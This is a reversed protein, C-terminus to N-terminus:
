CTEKGRHKALGKRTTERAMPGWIPKEELGAVKKLANLSDM